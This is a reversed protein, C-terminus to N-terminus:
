THSSVATQISNPQELHAQVRVAGTPCRRQNQAAVGLADLALRIWSALSTTLQHLCRHAGAIHPYRPSAPRRVM